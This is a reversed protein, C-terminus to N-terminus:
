QAINEDLLSIPRKQIPSLQCVCARVCVRVTCVSKFVKVFEGSWFRAAIDDSSILIGLIKIIVREVKRGTELRFLFVKGQAMPLIYNHTTFLMFHM